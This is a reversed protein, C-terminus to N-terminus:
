NPQYDFGKCTITPHFRTYAITWLRLAAPSRFHRARRSLDRLQSARSELANTTIPLHLERHRKFTRYYRLHKLFWRVIMAFRKALGPARVAQRLWAVRAARETVGSLQLLKRMENFIQLRLQPVSVSTNIRGLRNQLQRILHVHCLQVVWGRELGISRLGPIHDCVLARIRLQLDDPLMDLACEWGTRGERGPLLVPDLCVGYTQKPGKLMMLYLSWQKGSFWFWMADAMLILPGEPLAYSPPTSTFKQLTQRFRYSAVQPSVKANKSLRHGQNFIRELLLVDKRRSKPGRKKKRFRWTRKCGSCQRRRTGFRYVLAGCCSSKAHLSKM